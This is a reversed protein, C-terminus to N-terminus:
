SRQTNVTRGQKKSGGIFSVPPLNLVPVPKDTDIREKTFLVVTLHGAVEKVLESYSPTSINDVDNYRWLETAKNYWM